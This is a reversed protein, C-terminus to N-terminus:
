ELKDKLKTYRNKADTMPKDNKDIKEGRLPGYIELIEKEYGKHNDGWDNPNRSIKEKKKKKLKPDTITENEKEIKKNEDDTEKDKTTYFTDLANEFYKSVHGPRNIDHDLATAKGLKSKLFDKLKYTAHGEPKKNLAKNLRTIFDIVQKNQFDQDIIAKVIPELIASRIKKKNKDKTFGERIKSKLDKGRIKKSDKNRPNKYYMKKNEVTWGCDEFLAKYKKPFDKKFEEIQIPFEGKGDINVTKQMAGATLIESDYSQVSDLKGENESMAILIEKEEETLKKDKILDKWGNFKDFKITGWYVLGYVSGYKTVQFKNIYQYGCNCFSVVLYKDKEDLWYNTVSNDDDKNKGEYTVEGKKIDTNVTHIDVLLYLYAKDDKTKDLNEYMKKLDDDKEARLKIKIATFYTKGTKDSSDKKDFKGEIGFVQKKNVLVPVFKRDDDAKVINLINDKDLINVLVKKNKINTGKVIIYLEQELKISDIKTYSEKNKDKIAFYANTITHKKVLENLNITHLIFNMMDRHVLKSKFFTKFDSSNTKYVQEELQNVNKIKLDLAL